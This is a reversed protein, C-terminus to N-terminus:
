DFLDTGVPIKLRTTAKLPGEITLGGAKTQAVSGVNLPAPVNGDPPPLDPEKWTSATAQSAWNFGVIKGVALIGTGVLIFKLFKRRNLDM